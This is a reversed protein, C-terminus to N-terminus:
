VFSVQLKGVPGGAGYGRGHNAAGLTSSEDYQERRAFDETGRWEGSGGQKGGSGLVGPGRHEPQLM